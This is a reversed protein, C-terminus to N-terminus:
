DKEKEAIAVLSLGFPPRIVREIRSLWPVVAKDYFLVQAPSEERRKVIRNNLLWGFVGLSNMYYIDRITFGAATLAASLGTRTYRRHHGVLRDITGFLFQYAPVLLALRGGPRLVERMNRLATMTQWM